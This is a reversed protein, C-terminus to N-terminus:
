KVWNSYPQAALPRFQELLDGGSRLADADQAIRGVRSPDPLPRDNLRGGGRTSHFHGREGHDVAALNLAADGAEGAGRATTQDHWDTCVCDPVALGYGRAGCPM